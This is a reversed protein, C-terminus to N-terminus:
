SFIPLNGNWGIYLNTEDSKCRAVLFVPQKYRNTGSSAYLMLTVTKSDDIPNIDTTVEWKGKGSISTPQVQRGDLNKNKALSDFCELRSLDGDIVACKAYEKDDVAAQVNAVLIISAALITLKKIM